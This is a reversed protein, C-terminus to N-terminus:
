QQPAFSQMQVAGMAGSNVWFACKKMDVTSQTISIDSVPTVYTTQGQSFAALDSSGNAFSEVDKLIRKALAVEDANGLLPTIQFVFPLQASHYIGLDQAGQFLPVVPKHNFLTRVVPVNNQSLTKGLDTAACYFVADGFIDGSQLIPSPYSSIDYLKQVTEQQAESLFPFTSAVWAKSSALDKSSGIWLTGENAVNEIWVPIRSFSDMYYAEQARDTIFTGDLVPQWNLNAQTSVDQFVSADVQQLCSVQDGSTCGFTSAFFDFIPKTMAPQPLFLLPAGSLLIARDFLKQKGDQAIMHMGLSIAGASHGMATVKTADGGFNAINDRVWEMALKQDLLGANLFGKDQLEPSSLFGFPGVRYNMTVLIFQAGGQLM